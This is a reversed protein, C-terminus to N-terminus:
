VNHVDTGACTKRALTTYEGLWGGFSHRKAHEKKEWNTTHSLKEATGGKVGDAKGPQQPRKQDNSQLPTNQRNM